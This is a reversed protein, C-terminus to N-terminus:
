HRVVTRIQVLVWGAGIIFSVITGASWGHIQQLEALYVPQGYSVLGWAFVTTAFCTLVVPWGTRFEEDIPTAAMM